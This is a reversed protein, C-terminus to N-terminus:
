HSSLALLIWLLINDILILIVLPLIGTLYPGESFTKTKSSTIQLQQVLRATPVVVTKEISPSWPLIVQRRTELATKRTSCRMSRSSEKVSIVQGQAMPPNTPARYQRALPPLRPRTILTRIWPHRMTSSLLGPTPQLAGRTSGERLPHRIELLLFTISKLRQHKEWPTTIKNISTQTSWQRSFLDPVEEGMPAAWHAM